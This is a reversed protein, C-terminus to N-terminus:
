IVEGTITLETFEEETNSTVRIVKNFYGGVKADYIIKIVATAGPLIAKAPWEPISCNGPRQVGMIQLPVSGVNTLTFNVTAPQDTTINGVNVTTQDWKAM